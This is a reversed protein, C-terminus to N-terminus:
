KAFGKKETSPRKSQSLTTKRIPSKAEFENTNEDDVRKGITMALLGLFGMSIGQGLPTIIALIALVMCLVAIWILHLPSLHFVLVGGIAISFLMWWLISAPFIGGGTRVLSILSILQSVVLIIAVGLALNEAIEM